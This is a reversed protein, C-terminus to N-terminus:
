WNVYRMMRSYVELPSSGRAVYYPCECLQMKICSLNRDVSVSFKKGFINVNAKEGSCAAKDVAYQINEIVNM